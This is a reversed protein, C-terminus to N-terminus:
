FGCEKPTVLVANRQGGQSFCGNKWLGAYTRGDAARHTGQGNPKGSKWEGEFTGGKIFMYVGKGHPQGDVFDGEYRDGDRWVYLGTGEQRGDVFDGRYRDGSDFNIVGSGNRRNGHFDGVYRDGNPWTYIGKCDMRGGRMDGDYSDASQGNLYWQVRGHGEAFGKICAGSWSMSERPRPASNWVKCGNRAASAWGPEAPKDSQAMAPAALLAVGLLLGSRM